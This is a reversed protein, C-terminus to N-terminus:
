YSGLWRRLFWEVSLFLLLLFFLIKYDILDNFAAEKYSVSTIDRRSKIASITKKYNKLLEFKGQTATSLQNLLSHNAYNDLSELAIDEVIFVGSKTHSKGNFKTSATWTYKGPRLRGLSLKYFNGSVGFQLNSKKGNEDSLVMKIKPETIADMADNYFTANVLVDEEKTFRKPLTVHLSSADQKVLLYQTTKQILKTFADFSGTRIFDNMKWKWIGEGFVVGYKVKDRKNFYLLPDKKKISGLRQFILVEAGGSIKMDGFKSKLPPFYDIAQKVPESLEFPKFGENLVGQNEDTQNGGSLTMGINLKQIIANSTNPGVCYLVATNKELFSSNIVPDFGIGPEHWIVLDVKKSVRNWDKLLVSEVELNQDQEVVNKLAAIDPHPAGSLIVVKSRSDVVEIYFVRKNNAYNYENSERSVAVTYSHFGVKDAELLFSVHEFDRKGDKYAIQQSALTKGNSSITVTTKGKGMKIAEVDVEVPFKNKYFTVENAAINKIYHDRKQITDGVGLAFVPTLSIKEAAYIPNNGSNFNGDSVFLIGGINRNYYDTQIKEFGASLNSEGDKFGDFAGFEAQTGVTMEVVEFSADLDEKLSTRLKNVLDEVESSDKYNKMSKSVDIVNIIIPKEIRYNVAEFIIGFLLIGILFLSLARLAQLIIRTRKSLGKFWNSNSYLWIALLISVVLWPLLWFLSIDTAFRM